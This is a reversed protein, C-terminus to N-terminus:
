MEKKGKRRRKDRGNTEIQSRDKISRADIRSRRGMEREDIRMIKKRRSVFEEVGKMRIMMRAVGRECM